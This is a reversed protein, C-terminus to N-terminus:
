ARLWATEETTTELRSGLARSSPLLLCLPIAAIPAAACVYLATRLDVADALAGLAVAAIGGLGISLGIGLGSAMGIHRPLYEQSMVMTVGFTGIVSAGVFALAIAGIVGGVALYVVILPGIAVVSALLVPRRGLRDAAPGALLTGVGGAFLMLALLRNGYAESHGKAVEWLPVFAILGFWSVSRFAIVGLLLGMAVPHDPGAASGDANREPVFGHLYPRLVLLLAAVALCPLALLLGGELGFQLVLATTVVPGLAYGINGGISFLSMGSARRRGSVYAAFKTGEPHYAATGLGSVTVFLLVLWYSPAAAALAVGIGGIALGAPLLWSAGRRDSWLGFAPQVVSSSFAWALIVLGALTYSLDFKEVLFPLLAPLAGNAFDTALHGGSLAAMARKDVGAAM